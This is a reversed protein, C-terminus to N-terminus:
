FDPWFFNINIPIDIDEEVGNIEIKTTLNVDPSINKIYLRLARSDQALLYNDVFNKINTKDEIWKDIGWHAEDFWIFLDQLDKEKILDYLKKFSQICCCILNYNNKNIKCNKDLNFTNYNNSLLSLYKDNINQECITTRPTLIIITKPTIKNMISFAIVTKGAGTALELYLKSTEKLISLGTDVINQQYERLITHYSELSQRKIEADNQIGM